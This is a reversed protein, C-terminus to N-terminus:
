RGAEAIFGRTWVLLKLRETWASLGGAGTTPDVHRFAASILAQVHPHGARAFARELEETECYPIVDDGRGHLLYVRLRRDLSPVVASPSLRRSLPEYRPLASCVIADNILGPQRPVIPLIREMFRAVRAQEDAAARRVVEPPTGLIGRIFLDRAVKGMAWFLFDSRLASEFLFPVGPPTVVSAAENARPAYAALAYM